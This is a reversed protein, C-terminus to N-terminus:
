ELSATIDDTEHIRLFSFEAPFVLTSAYHPLFIMIFLVTM